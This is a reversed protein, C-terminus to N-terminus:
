ALRRYLDAHKELVYAMAEDVTPSQRELVTELSTRVLDDLSCGLTDALATLRQHQTTPLTITITTTETM